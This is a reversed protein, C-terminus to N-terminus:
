RGGMDEGRVRKVRCLWAGQVVELRNTVLSTQCSLEPGGMSHARNGKGVLREGAM